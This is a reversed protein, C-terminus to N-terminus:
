NFWRYYPEDAVALLQKDGDSDGWARVHYQNLDGYINELRRVKEAQRCNRGQIAGTFTGNREELRTGILNIGLREAFPMLIIEPSASCLTVVAGRRLQGEVEAYGSLRMLKPWYHHCFDDSLHGLEAVSFGTLFNRILDEKLEDRNKIGLLHQTAPIALGAMGAIFRPFGLKVRLFLTFSDRYTLTGDFDFVSLVPKSPTRLSM